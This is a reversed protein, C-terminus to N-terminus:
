SIVSPPVRPYSRFHTHQHFATIPCYKITVDYGLNMPKSRNMNLMQHGYSLVRVKQTNVLRMFTSVLAGMRPPTFVSFSPFSFLCPPAIIFICNFPCEIEYYFLNSLHSSIILDMRYRPCYVLSPNAPDSECDM